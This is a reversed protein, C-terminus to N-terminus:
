RSGALVQASGLRSRAQRLSTVDGSALGAQGVLALPTSSLSGRGRLVTEQKLTRFVTALATLGVTSTPVSIPVLVLGGAHPHAPALAGSAREKGQPVCTADMVRGRFDLAKTAAM